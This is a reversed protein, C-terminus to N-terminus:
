IGCIQIPNSSYEPKSIMSIGKESEFILLGRWSFLSRAATSVLGSTMDPVLKLRDLMINKAAGPERLWPWYKKVTFGVLYLVPRVTPNTLQVKLM